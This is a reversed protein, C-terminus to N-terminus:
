GYQNEDKYKKSGEIKRVVSDKMKISRIYGEIKRVMENGLWKMEISRIDELGGIWVTKENRYMKYGGIKRNYQTKNRYKYEKFKRLVRENRYKKHWEINRVM